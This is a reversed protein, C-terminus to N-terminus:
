CCYFNMPNQSKLEQAVVVNLPTVTLVIYNQHQDTLMLCQRNNITSNNDSYTMTNVITRCIRCVHAYELFADTACDVEVLGM